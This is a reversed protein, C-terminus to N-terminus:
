GNTTSGESTSKDVNGRSPQQNGHSNKTRFQKQPEIECKEGSPTTGKKSWTIINSYSIGLIEEAEKMSKYTTEGITVQRRKQGNVKESITPNSMPNNKSMRERQKKSRMVNNESYQKRREETWWTTAGGSGGDYINCVCQGKEKLEGIRQYEYDFADKENEFTKM